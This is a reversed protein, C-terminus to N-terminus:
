RPTVDHGAAAAAAGVYGEACGLDLLRQREDIGGLSRIRAWKSAGRRRLIGETRSKMWSMLLLLGGGGWGVALGLGYAGEVGVYRLYTLASWSVLWLLAARWGSRSASRAAWLAPALHWPHLTSSALTYAIVLSATAAEPSINSHYQKIAIVAISAIFVLAMVGSAVRGSGEGALPWVASKLLVYPASYFDFTGAYLGLSSGVASLDLGPSTRCWRSESLSCSRWRLASAAAGLRWSRSPGCRSGSPWALGLGAVTERRRLLMALGMSLLGIAFGETHGQGAIEVLALPHWAYLALRGPRIERALLWLGGLETLVVLLKYILWASGFREGRGM